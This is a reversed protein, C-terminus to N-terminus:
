SVPISSVGSRARQVPQRHLEYRPGIEARQEGAAVARSRPRAGTTCSARLPGRASWVAPDPM